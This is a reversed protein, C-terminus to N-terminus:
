STNGPAGVNKFFLTGGTATVTNTFVANVAPEPAIAVQGDISSSRVTAAM